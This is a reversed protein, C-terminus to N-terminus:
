PAPAPTASTFYHGDRGLGTPREHVNSRSNATPPSGPSRSEIRTIRSPEQGESRPATGCGHANYRTLSPERSGAVHEQLIRRHRARIERSTKQVNREGDDNHECCHCDYHHKAKSSRAAALSRREWVCAKVDVVCVGLQDSATAGASNAAFKNGIWLWTTAFLCEAGTLARALSRREWVCAKVDVVCVGLQDGATAGASNAVLKNGIWLWTTAFLCEAGTLARLYVRTKSGV